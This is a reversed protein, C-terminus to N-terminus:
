YQVHLVHKEHHPSTRVQRAWLLPGYSAMNATNNVTAAPEATATHQHAQIARYTHKRGASSSASSFSSSSFTSADSHPSALHFPGPPLCVSLAAGPLNRRGNWDCTSEQNLSPLLVLCQAIVSAIRSAGSNGKSKSSAKGKGTEYTLGPTDCKTIHRIYGSM